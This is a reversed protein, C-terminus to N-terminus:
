NWLWGFVGGTLLAYVLGDFMFKLTTTWSRSYWVSNQILAISYAGFAAAGVIRMVALYNADVALSQIAIYAAFIGVIISYLFWAILNKGMAFPGKPMATMMGVPGQNMKNQYEESQMAKSSGAFPYMYEGPPIELGGVSERFKEEDPLKSFNSSHYGLVMHIISSVMFVAVASLLIPLWLSIITM